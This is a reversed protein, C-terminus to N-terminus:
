NRLRCVQFHFSGIIFSLFDNGTVVSLSFDYGKLGNSSCFAFWEGGINRKIIKVVEDSLPDARKSLGQSAAKIICNYERDDIGNGRALLKFGNPMTSSRKLGNSQHQQQQAMPNVTQQGGTQVVAIGPNAVMVTQQPMVVNSMIVTGPMTQARLLVPAPQVMPVIPQYFPAAPGYIM